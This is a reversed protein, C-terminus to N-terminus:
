ENTREMQRYKGPTVGTHKSFFRIFNQANTYNLAMAIEAVSLESKLLMNTAAAIKSQASYEAFSMGTHTKLIRWIYSTHYGLRESCEAITINGGTEDFLDKIRQMPTAGERFTELAHICPEIVSDKFFRELEETNCLLGAQMYLPQEREAFVQDLSLGAESVVTLIATVFRNIRMANEHKSSAWRPLGSMFEALCRQAKNRNCQDIALRIEQEQAELPVGIVTKDTRIDSYYSVGGNVAEEVLVDSKLAEVSELFAARSWSLNTIFSSVGVYLVVSLERQAYEMLLGCFSEVRVHLREEDEAGLVLIIANRDNVPPVYLYKRATEPLHELFLIRMANEDVSGPDDGRGVPLRCALVCYCSVPALRLQISQEEIQASTLEGRFLRTAFNQTLMDRQDEIIREMTFNSGILQEVERTIQQIENKTNRSKDSTAKVFSALYRVPRYLWLSGLRSLAVLLVVALAVVANIALIRDAGKRVMDENYAIIFMLGDQQSLAVTMRYKENDGVKTSIPGTLGKLEDYQRACYEALIENSTMFIDSNRDLAVVDYDGLDRMLLRYLYTSNLNIILADEVEMNVSPLQLVLSYGRLDIMDRSLRLQRYEAANNHWRMRNYTQDEKFLILEEAQEYNAMESYRQIGSSTIAFDAERNIYSYGYIYEYIGSSGRFQRIADNINDYRQYPIENEEFLWNVGANNPIEIYYEKISALVTGVRDRAQNAASQIAIDLKESLDDVYTWYSFISIVSLPLLSIVLIGIFMQTKYSLQGFGSRKM